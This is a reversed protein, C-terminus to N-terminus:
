NTPRWSAIRKDLVKMAAAEAERETAFSVQSQDRAQGFECLTWRSRGVRLLDPEVKITFYHDKLM